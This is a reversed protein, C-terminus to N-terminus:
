GLERICLERFHENEIINCIETDNMKVAVQYYCMPGLYEHTIRECDETKEADYIHFAECRNNECIPVSPSYMQIYLAFPHELPIYNRNFAGQGMSIVCDSDTICYKAFTNNYGEAAFYVVASFVFFAIIYLIIGRLWKKNRSIYCGFPYSLLIFSIIIFQVPINYILMMGFYFPYFFPVISIVLSIGLLLISILIKRKDPRLCDKMGM